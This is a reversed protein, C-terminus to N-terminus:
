LPRVPTAVPGPPLDIMHNYSLKRVPHLLTQHFKEDYRRNSFPRFRARTTLCRYKVEIAIFDQDVHRLVEVQRNRDTVVDICSLKPLQEFSFLCNTKGDCLLKMDETIEQNSFLGSPCILDERFEFPDIFQLPCRDRNGLVLRAHQIKLTAENACRLYDSLRPNSELNLDPTDAPDLEHNRCIILEAARPDLIAPSLFFATTYALLCSLIFLKLM